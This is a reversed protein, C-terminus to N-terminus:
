ITVGSPDLSQVVSSEQTQRDTIQEIAVVGGLFIWALMSGRMGALGINYVFPLVWDALMAAAFTGAVGGIAGYVYAQAFGEAARNRLTLSLWMMEVGFWLFCILGVIGTQAVIDLYQNHSNFQVAYGRIPFLPTFFRYNAPGFGLIPSVKIIEWMILFADVRTSYSYEDSAIAGSSLFIAPVVSLLAIVLAARWSRAGVIAGIAVFSPLYGSKWSGSKFYAVYLTMITVLALVVRWRRDLKRNFLAQGLSMAVLWTWFMSNATAPRQFFSGTLSGVSPVIWGLVFLAGLGIFLFTLAQLWRLNAQHATLLFAGISLVFIMVGGVQAELPAIARYSFWGLQGFGFSLLTVILLAILPRIPRSSVLDIKKRVIMNLVWLGILLILMLVAFNLGGPLVPSPVLLATIILAVLGVAPWRIIFWLGAAGIVIGIVYVLNNGSLVLPSAISLVAVAMVM